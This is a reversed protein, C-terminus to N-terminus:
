PGPGPAFHGVWVKGQYSMISQAMEALMGPPIARMPAPISGRERARDRVSCNPWTLVWLYKGGAAMSQPCVRLARRDAPGPRRHEAGWILKDTQVLPTSRAREHVGHQGAAARSAGPAGVSGQAPNIQAIGRQGSEAVWLPAEM